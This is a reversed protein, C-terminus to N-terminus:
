QMVVDTADRKVAENADKKEWQALNAERGQIDARTVYCQKTSNTGPFSYGNFVKVFNAATDSTLFNIFGYGITSKNKRAPFYLYDYTNAFGLLELELDMREESVRCPVNRVMVTTFESDMEPDKAQVEEYANSENSHLRGYKSVIDSSLESSIESDSLVPCDDSFTYQMIIERLSQTHGGSESSSFM